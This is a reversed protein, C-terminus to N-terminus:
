CRPQITKVHSCKSIAVFQLKHHTDNIRNKRKKEATATPHDQHNVGKDHRGIDGDAILRTLLFSFSKEMKRKEREDINGAKTKDDQNKDGHETVRNLARCCYGAKSCAQQEHNNIPGAAYCM